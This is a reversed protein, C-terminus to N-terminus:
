TKEVCHLEWGRIPDPSEPLDLWSGLLLWGGGAALFEACDRRTEFHELAIGRGTVPGSLVAVLAVSAALLSM